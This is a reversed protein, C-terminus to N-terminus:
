KILEMLGWLAVSGALLLFSLMGLCGKKPVAPKWGNLYELTYGLKKVDKDTNKNVEARIGVNAAVDILNNLSKATWIQSLAVKTGDSLLVPREDKVFYLSMDSKQNHAEAEALPLFMEEVGKDPATENPFVRRLDALTTQPYILTYAKIIGLAVGNQTKGVVKIKEDM